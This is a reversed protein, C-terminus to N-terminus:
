NLQLMSPHTLSLFATSCNETPSKSNKPGRTSAVNAHTRHANTLASGLTRTTYKQFQPYKDKVEKTSYGEVLGNAVYMKLAMGDENGSNWKDISGVLQKSSKRMSSQAPAM